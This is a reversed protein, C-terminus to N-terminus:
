LINFDNDNHKELADMECQDFLFNLISIALLASPSCVQKTIFFIIPCFEACFQLGTTRKFVMELLHTFHM